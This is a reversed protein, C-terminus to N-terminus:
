LLLRARAHAHTHTLTTQPLPPPSPAWRVSSQFSCVYVAEYQALTALVSGPGCQDQGASTAGGGANTRGASVPAPAPPPTGDCTDVVVWEDEEAPKVPARMLRAALAAMAAGVAVGVAFTGDVRVMALIRVRLNTSRQGVFFVVVEREVVSLLLAHCV